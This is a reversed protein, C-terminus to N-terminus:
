QSICLIYLEFFLALLFSQLVSFSFTLIIQLSFLFRDDHWGFIIKCSEFFFGCLWCCVMLYMLFLSPTVNVSSSFMIPCHFSYKSFRSVQDCLYRVFFIRLFPQRGHYSLLLFTLSFPHCHCPFKLAFIYYLM